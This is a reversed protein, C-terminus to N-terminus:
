REALLRRRLESRDVKASGNLPLEDVITLADPRKYDALEAGVWARVDELTVPQDVVAVAHGIDGLVPDPVAIVAVMAVHPHRSLVLEVESPYVNYGGRHYMEGQRGLLRLNGDADLTGVDGVTLWGDPALVEATKVADRWYGRMVAPSRLQVTGPTDPGVPREADDVVRLEVGPAARGVTECVVRDPDGPVTGSAIAAETTAYRNLIPRPVRRRLRELLAPPVRSGGTALLRLHSLDTHDFDPHRLMLEWQTPVGQAVTVRERAILALTAGASWPQPTIVTTVVNGIEDWPRTMTGVHPFPLPSLRRDFPASLAGMSAAVARLNEHDFLAGKPQGTSGTTWVLAVPMAPDLAPRPPADLHTTAALDHRHMVEIGPPAPLEDDLVLLRPEATALIHRVEGPGLRLNIGSTIAGLRMAAQYCVMYDIGSPLMLAVVDGSRVGRNAFATALGDARHQWEAFSIRAGDAEVFADLEGHADVVARLLDVTHRANFLVTGRGIIL